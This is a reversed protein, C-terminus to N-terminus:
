DIKKFRYEEDWLLVVEGNEDQLFDVKEGDDIDRFKTESLARLPYTKNDEDLDILQLHKGNLKIQLTYIEGELELRYTGEYTKLIDIAVDVTKLVKPQLFDWKKLHSIGRIVESFLYGGNDGNTLVVVANKGTKSAMMINTFGKNKGTHYFVLSDKEKKLDFGLGYNAKVRTIMSQASEQSILGTNADLIKQFAILFKALDEATTWLGGSALAAANFWYGEILKGQRNYAFSIDTEEEDYQFPYFASHEMQLPDLVQDKVVSSFSSHTADEVVKQIVAYGTNSYKYRINPLTDFDAKKYREYGNLLENLTPLYGRQPFGPHNSNNMGSTHSLLMRLTIVTDKTFKSKPLKWTRLYTNIDEDVDLIGQEALKIVTFATLSKSISGAQFLMQTDVVVSDNVRAMGYGKSWVLEGNEVIAIQVGPVKYHEMREQLNYFRPESEVQISPILTSEFTAISNKEETTCSSFASLILLFVVWMTYLLQNKM